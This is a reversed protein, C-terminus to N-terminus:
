GAGREQRELTVSVLEDGSKERNTRLETLGLESRGDLVM